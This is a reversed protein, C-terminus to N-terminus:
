NAMRADENGCVNKLSSRYHGLEDEWVEGKFEWKVSKGDGAKVELQNKSKTDGGALQYRLHEGAGSFVEYALLESQELSKALVAQMSQFREKLAKGANVKFGDKEKEMRALASTRLDKISDRARKAVAQQAKLGAIKRDMTRLESEFENKKQRKKLENAAGQLESQRRIIDRETQILSVTLGNFKTVQDETDNILSQESIFNPHRALDVILARPLGNIVKEDSKKYVTRLSEYFLQDNPKKSAFAKMIEAMPEYRKKFDYLVKMGDGYQCLNLYGVTRVVYSEPAFRHKLFDTHLTFMNGAAGEPDNFLIQSWAQEIMAQPWEPHSKDVLLYNQFAEKYAGTQFLMRALTLAIMSRIEADPKTTQVATLAQKQWNLAEKLSGSRYALLSRLMHAEPLLQSKAGISDLASAALSLNNTGMYHRARNIQYQDAGDLTIDLAELKPDLFKVLDRDGPGAGMALARAARKQWEVDPDKMVKNLQFKFESYLGLGLASLGLHYSGETRTDRGEKILESLLGFALGYNKHLELFILADVLKLEGVTLSKVEIPSPQPENFTPEPVEKLPQLVPTQFQPNLKVLSRAPAAPTVQTLKKDFSSLPLSMKKVFSFDVKKEPPLTVPVDHFSISAETGVNLRPIDKARASKKKDVFDFAPVGSSKIKLGGEPAQRPSSVQLDQALATTLLTATIITLSM